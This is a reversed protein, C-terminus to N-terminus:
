KVLFTTKVTPDVLITRELGDAYRLAVAVPQPQVKAMKANMLETELDGIKGRLLENELRLQAIEAIKQDLSLNLQKVRKQYDMITNRQNSLRKEAEKITVPEETLEDSGLKSVPAMVMSVKTYVERERDLTVKLADYKRRLDLVDQYAPSWGYDGKVVIAHTGGTAAVGCGALQVRLQDVENAYNKLDEANQGLEEAYNPNQAETLPKMRFLWVMRSFGKDFTVNAFRKNSFLFRITGTDGVLVNRLRSPQHETAVVRDGNKPEWKDMFMAHFTIAKASGPFAVKYTDGNGLEESRIQGVDGPNPDGPDSQWHGKLIVLDQYKFKPYKPAPKDAAQYHQIKYPMVYNIKRRDGDFKVNVIHGPEADQLVTGLTGIPIKNTKVAQIRDGKRFFTGQQQEMNQVTNEQNYMTNEKQIRECKMCLGHTEVRKYTTFADCIACRPGSTQKTTEYTM